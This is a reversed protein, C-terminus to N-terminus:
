RAGGSAPAPREAGPAPPHCTRCVLAGSGQWFSVGHCWYCVVSAPTPALAAVIAAKHARTEDALAAPCSTGPTSGARLERLRDLSRNRPPSVSVSNVTNV